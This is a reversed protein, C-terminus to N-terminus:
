TKHVLHYTTPLNTLKKGKLIPVLPGYVATAIDVHHSTYPCDLLLNSDLIRKLTIESPWGLRAQLIRVNDAAKIEHRTFYEKNSAVTNLFCYATVDDNVKRPVMHALPNATDFYYLGDGCCLFKMAMDSSTHVLLVNEITSDMTVRYHTTISGLGVINAIGNQNYHGEIKDLLTFHGKQTYDLTGGNSISRLPPCPQVNTLLNINNVSNFTSGSDLLLWSPQIIQSAMSVNDNLTPPNCTSQALCVPTAIQMGQFGARRPETCNPSKHGCRGCNWCTWQPNCTNDAGPIPPGDVPACRQFVNIAVRPNRDSQGRERTNSPVYKSLMSYAEAKTTPYRNDGQLMNNLLSIRLDDYKKPNAAELLLMAMVKDEVKKEAVDSSVGNQKEIEVLAPFALSGQALKLNQLASQLRTNINELSESDGQKSLFLSKMNKVITLIGYQASDSGSSSRKLNQLLWLTNYSNSQKEWDILGRIEEQISPTCQGWIIGYLKTTNQFLINRRTSFLKLEANIIEEIGEVIEQEDQNLKEMEVTPDIGAQEKLKKKSPIHKMLIKMPDEFHKILPAIDSAYDFTSIVHDHIGNQFVLFSDTRRDSKMGLTTLGEIKGKFRATNTTNRGGNYRRNNRENRNGDNTGNRENTHNRANDNSANNNNEANPNTNNNM